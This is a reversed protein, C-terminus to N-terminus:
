LAEKAHIKCYYPTYIYEEDFYAKEVMMHPVVTKRILIYSEGKIAKSKRLLCSCTECEVLEGIKNLDNRLIRTTEYVNNFEKKIEQRLM